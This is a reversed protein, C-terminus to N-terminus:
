EMEKKEEQCKRKRRKDCISDEKELKRCAQMKGEKKEETNFHDYITCKTYGSQESRATM